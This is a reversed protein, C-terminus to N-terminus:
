SFVRVQRMDPVLLELIRNVFSQYDIDSDRINLETAMYARDFTQNMCTECGDMVRDLLPPLITFM